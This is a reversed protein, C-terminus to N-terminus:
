ECSGRSRASFGRPGGENHLRGRLSIVFGDPHIRALPVRSLRWAGREVFWPDPLGEVVRRRLGFTGAM